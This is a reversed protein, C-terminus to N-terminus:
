RKARNWANIAGKETRRPPGDAGCRKAECSIFWWYVGGHSMVKKEGCFPCPKINPTKM